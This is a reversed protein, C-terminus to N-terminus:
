KKEVPDGAEWKIDVKAGKNVARVEKGKADIASIKGTLPKPETYNLQVWIRSDGGMSYVEFLKNDIRMRGKPTITYPRVGQMMIVEGTVIDGNFEINDVYIYAGSNGAPYTVQTVIKDPSPNLGEYITATSTESTVTGGANMVIQKVDKYTLLPNVTGAGDLSRNTKNINMANALMSKMQPISFNVRVFGDQVSKVFLCYYPGAGTYAYGSGSKVPFGPYPFLPPYASGTYDVAKAHPSFLLCLFLILSNLILRQSSFIQM